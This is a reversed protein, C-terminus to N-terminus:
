RGPHLPLADLVALALDLDMKVKLELEADTDLCLVGAMFIRGAQDSKGPAVKLDFILGKPPRFHLAM